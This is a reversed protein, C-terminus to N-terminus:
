RIYLIFLEFFKIVGLLLLESIILKRIFGEIIWDKNLFLNLREGIRKKNHQSISRLGLIDNTGM